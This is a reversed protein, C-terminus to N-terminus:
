SPALDSSDFRCAVAALILIVYLFPLQESIIARVRKMGKGEEPTNEGRAKANRKIWKKRLIGPKDVRL